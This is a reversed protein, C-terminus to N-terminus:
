CLDQAQRAGGLKQWTGKSCHSGAGLLILGVNIANHLATRGTENRPCQTEAAKPSWIM